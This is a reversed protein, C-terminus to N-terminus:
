VARVRFVGADLSVVRVREGASLNDHPSSADVEVKWTVGSYRYTGPHTLSIDEPLVLEYGVLDSSQQAVPTRNEQMKRLPKWLLISVVGTSIGFCATGAIWTEPLAGVMMLLGTILAGLGAFMFIITTFGFLLVEAALMAFGAAIWFGSQHTHIYDLM